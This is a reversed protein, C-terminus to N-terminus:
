ILLIIDEPIYRRTTQQFATSNRLLIDGGDEPHFFLALLFSGHRLSYAENSTGQKAKNKWGSSPPSM